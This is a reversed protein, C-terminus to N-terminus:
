GHKCTNRGDGATGRAKFWVRCPPPFGVLTLATSLIAARPAWARFMYLGYMSGMYVLFAAVFFALAFSSQSLSAKADLARQAQRFGDPILSPFILDLLGSALGVAFSLLLVVRFHRQTM